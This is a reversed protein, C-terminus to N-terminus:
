RRRRKAEVPEAVEAEVEAASEDSVAVPAPAKVARATVNADTAGKAVAANASGLALRTERDLKDWGFYRAEAGVADAIVDDNDHETVVLEGGVFNIAEAINKLTAKGIKLLNSDLNKSEWEVTRLDFFPTGLPSAEAKVRRRSLLTFRADDTVGAYEAETLQLLAGNDVSGFRGLEITPGSYSVTKM